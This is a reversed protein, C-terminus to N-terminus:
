QWLADKKGTIVTDALQILAMVVALVVGFGPSYFEVLILPGLYVVLIVAAYIKENKSLQPGRPKAQANFKEMLAGRIMTNTVAFMTILAAPIVTVILCIYELLLHNNMTNLDVSINFIGGLLAVLMPITFVFAKARDIKRGVNM